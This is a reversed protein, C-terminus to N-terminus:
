ACIVMQEGWRIHVNGQADKEKRMMGELMGPVLGISQYLDNNESSIGKMFLNMKEKALILALLNEEISNQYTVFYVKTIQTSTFRIFRFYHQSIAPLNWHLEPIICVNVFDINMSSSLSQQTCVIIANQSSKFPGYILEKRVKIDLAGTIVFVERQPFAKRIAAAYISVVKIHRVGICVREDKHKELLAL